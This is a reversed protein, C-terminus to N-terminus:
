PGPLSKLIPSSWRWPSSSPSVQIGVKPFGRKKEHMCLPTFVVLFSSYKRYPINIRGLVSALIVLETAM